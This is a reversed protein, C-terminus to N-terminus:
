ARVRYEPAAIIRDDDATVVHAPSTIGCFFFQVHEFGNQIVIQSRHDRLSRELKAYDANRCNIEIPLQAFIRSFLIRM